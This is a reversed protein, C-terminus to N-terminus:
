SKMEWAAGFVYAALSTGLITFSMSVATSMVETDTGFGLVYVIVAMCFTVIALMFRRRHRWNDETM